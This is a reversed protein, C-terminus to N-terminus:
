RGNTHCVHPFCCLVVCVSAHAFIYMQKIWQTKLLSIVVSKILQNTLEISMSAHTHLPKQTKGPEWIRKKQWPCLSLLSQCQVNHSQVRFNIKIPAAEFRTGTAPKSFSVTLNQLRVVRTSRWRSCTVQPLVTTFMEPANFASFDLLMTLGQTVSFYKNVLSIYILSLFYTNSVIHIHANRSQM